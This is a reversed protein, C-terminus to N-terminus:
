LLPPGRSISVSAGGQNMLVFRQHRSKQQQHGTQAERVRMDKEDHAASKTKNATRTMLLFHARSIM